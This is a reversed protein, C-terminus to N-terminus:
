KIMRLLVLSIAIADDLFLDRLRVLRGVAVM